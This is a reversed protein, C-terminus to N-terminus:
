MTGQEVVGNAFCEAAKMKKGKGAAGKTAEIVDHVVPNLCWVNDDSFGYWVESRFVDDPM